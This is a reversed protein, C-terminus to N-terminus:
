AEWPEQDAAACGGDGERDSAEEEELHELHAPDPTADSESISRELGDGYTAQNMPLTVVKLAGRVEGNFIRFTFRHEQKGDHVHASLPVLQM